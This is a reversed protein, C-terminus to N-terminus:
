FNFLLCVEREFFTCDSFFLSLCFLYIKRGNQPFSLPFFGLYEAGLFAAFQVLNLETGLIHQKLDELSFDSRQFLSLIKISFLPLLLLEHASFELM